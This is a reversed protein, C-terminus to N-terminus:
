YHKLLRAFAIWVAVSILGFSGLALFTPGYGEAQAIWGGLIPSLSAGVGQVTLVAGQGLNIRGTGNLSRAVVGPVAVSQLGAGLGDLIQVPIVGWWGAFFYALIGRVPLAAFSVLLIGWYGKKEAVGMAAIAAIVMVAQAIVVTTAVFSPGNARSDAVAALGYVPVIAANGLHFVALAVSLVLLPKHTLLVHWANPQSDPDDERTGRAARNDISRAPIM